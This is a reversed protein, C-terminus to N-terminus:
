DLKAEIKDMEENFNIRSLSRDIEPSGFGSDQSTDFGDQQSKVPSTSSEDSIPPKSPGPLSDIRIVMPENTDSAVTIENVESEQTSTSDVEVEVAKLSKLAKDKRLLLKFKNLDEKTGIYQVRQDLNASHVQLVPLGQDSLMAIQSQPPCIRNVIEVINFLGNYGRKLPPILINFRGFLVGFDMNECVEGSSKLRLNNFFIPVIKLKEMEGLSMNRLCSLTEFQLSELPFVLLAAHFVKESRVLAQIIDMCLDPQGIKLHVILFDSKELYDKNEQLQKLGNVEVFSVPEEYEAYKDKNVKKWYDRLLSAQTNPEGNIIEAGSYKVMRESDFKGPFDVLLKHKGVYGSIQSLVAFTKEIDVLTQYSEVLTKLSMKGELVKDSESMVYKEGCKALKNFVSHIMKQKECRNISGVNGTATKLDSTEFDEFKNIVKMLIKFGEESWLCLKRLSTSEDPGVRSLKSMREVVKFAGARSEKVVLNEFVHLLDQPYTKRGHKNAIENARFNGYHILASSNTNLVYCLVKGSSHGTLKNFEGRKGIEVFALFTHIKQVVLFKQKGVERLNPPGTDDVPCVVLVSLSPDYRRQISSIISYVRFINVKSKLDDAVKLNELPVNALGIYCKQYQKELGAEDDLEIKENENIVGAKSKKKVPGTDDTKKRKRGDSVVNEKDITCADDKGITERSNNKVLTVFERYGHLSGGNDELEKELIGSGDIMFGDVTHKLERHHIFGESYQVLSLYNALLIKNGKVCMSVIKQTFPNVGCELSNLIVEDFAVTERRSNSFKYENVVIDGSRRVVFQCKVPPGWPIKVSSSQPSSSYFGIKGTGTKYGIDVQFQEGVKSPFLFWGNKPRRARSTLM